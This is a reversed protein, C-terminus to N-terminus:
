SSLVLLLCSSRCEVDAWRPSAVESYAESHEPLSAGDPDIPDPDKFTIICPFSAAPVFFVLPMVLVASDVIDLDEYSQSFIQLDKNWAKEMIEEYLTDRAALWEMRRPCPLSRKDALRLGIVVHPPVSSSLALRMGRDIAVWM